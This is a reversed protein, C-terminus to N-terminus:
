NGADQSIDIKRESQNFLGFNENGQALLEAKELARCALGAVVVEARTEALDHAHLLQACKAGPDARRFSQLLGDLPAM